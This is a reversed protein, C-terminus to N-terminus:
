VVLFLNMKLYGIGIVCPNLASKYLKKQHTGVAQKKVARKHV